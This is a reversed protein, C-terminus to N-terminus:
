SGRLRAALAELAYVESRTGRAAKVWRRLEASSPEVFRARLIKGRM